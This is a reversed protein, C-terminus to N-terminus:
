KIWHVEFLDLEYIAWEQGVVASPVLTIVDAALTYDIGARLKAGNRYVWVKSSNVPMGVAAITAANATEDAAVAAYEELGSDVLDTVLMKKIEGSAEDRVMLTFGTADFATAAIDNVPNTTADLAKIGTIAFIQGTANIYTDELLTGGLQWTTTTKNGAATSTITTIGNNSQMYKITGKNDILRITEGAKNARTTNVTTPDTTQGQIASGIMMIFVLVVLKLYKNRMTKLKLQQKKAKSQFNRM